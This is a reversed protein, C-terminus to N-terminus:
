SRDFNFESREYNVYSPFEQKLEELILAGEETGLTYDQRVVDQNVYVDDHCQQLDYNSLVASVLVSDLNDQIEDEDTIAPIEFYRGDKLYCIYGDDGDTRTTYVRSM